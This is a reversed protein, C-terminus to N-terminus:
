TKGSSGFSETRVRRVCESSTDVTARLKARWAKWLTWSSGPMSESILGRSSWSLSMSVM